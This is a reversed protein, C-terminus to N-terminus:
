LQNKWERARVTRPRVELQQQSHQVLVAVGNARVAEQGRRIAVLQHGLDVAPHDVEQALGAVMATLPRRDVQLSATQADVSLLPRLEAAPVHWQCFSSTEDDELSLHAMAERLEGAGTPDGQAQMQAAFADFDDLYQQPCYERLQSM